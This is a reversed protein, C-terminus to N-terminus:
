NFDIDHKSESNLTHLFFNWSLTSLIHARSFDAPPTLPSFTMSLTNIQLITRQQARSFFLHHLECLSTYRIISFSLIFGYPLSTFHDIEYRLFNAEREMEM